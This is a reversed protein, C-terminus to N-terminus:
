EGYVCWVDCMVCLSVVVCFINDGMFTKDDLTVVVRTADKLDQEEEEEEEEEEELPLFISWDDDDVDIFLVDVVVVFKLLLNVSCFLPLLDAIIIL